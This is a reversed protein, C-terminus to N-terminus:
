KKQWQNLYLNYTDLYGCLGVSTILSAASLELTLDGPDTFVFSAKLDAELINLINVASPDEVCREMATKIDTSYQISEDKNQRFLYELLFNLCIAGIFVAM